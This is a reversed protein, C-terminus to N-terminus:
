QQAHTYLHTPQWWGRNSLRNKHPPEDQKNLTTVVPGSLWSRSVGNLAYIVSFEFYLNHQLFYIFLRNSDGNAEREGKRNLRWLEGTENHWTGRTSGTLGIWGLVGCEELCVFCNEKRKLSCHDNKIVFIEQNITCFNDRRRTFFQLYFTRLHCLTVRHGLIGTM